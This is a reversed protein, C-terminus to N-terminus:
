GQRVYSKAAAEAETRQGDEDCTCVYPGQVSACEGGHPTDDEDLTGYHERASMWGEVYAAKIASSTDQTETTTDVGRVQKASNIIRTLTVTQRARMGAPNDVDDMSILWDLFYNVDDQNSPQDKQQRLQGELMEIRQLLRAVADGPCPLDPRRYKAAVRAVELAEEYTYHYLM